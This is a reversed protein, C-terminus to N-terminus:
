DILGTAPKIKLVWNHADNGFDITDGGVTSFDTSGKAQGVTIIFDNSDIVIDQAKDTGDGGVSGGFTKSWQFTGSSDHKVIYVDNNSGSVVSQGGLNYSGGIQGGSYVNGDDDVTVALGLAQGSAGNGSAFRKVWQFAFSSNLKLLYIDMGSSTINGGGFNVTNQFTGTAYINGSSDVFLGKGKTTTDINSTYIDQYTGSSNLKLIFLDNTNAATINGGGFNVTNSYSGTIYPNDNSDLALARSDDFGTGGATYVWQFVGSSNFKILFIDADTAVVDGAGFDVTGRYTGLMYINDNSDIAVDRGLDNGSNSGYSKVWQFTGSSDLKLLFADWNGNSTVNGGGFDVTSWYYGTVYINGSSDLAIKRGRDRGTGGATYVWQVVGSPNLKAVFIDDTTGSTANKGFLNTGQSTGTIYINDSSDIAVGAADTDLGSLGFTSLFGTNSINGLRSQGDGSSTTICRWTNYEDRTILSKSLTMGSLYNSDNETVEVLTYSCNEGVVIYKEELSENTTSEISFSNTSDIDECTVEKLMIKEHTEKGILGDVKIEAEKQFDKIADVSQDDNVGTAKDLCGLEVLIEQMHLTFYDGGNDPEHALSTYNFFSYFIVLFLFLIKLKM